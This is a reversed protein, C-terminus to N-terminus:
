EAMQGLFIESVKGNKFTFLEGGYPSGVLYANPNDGSGETSHQYHKKVDAKSSGILIGRSTALTSPAKIGISAVELGHGTKVMSIGVGPWSWASTIEGTAESKEPKTKKRPKGLAAMVDKASSGIKLGGITEDSMVTKGLPKLPDADHQPAVDPQAPSPSAASGAGATVTPAGSASGGRGSGAKTNSGGGAGASGVAAHAEASAPAPKDAADETKGCGLMAVVMIAITTRM